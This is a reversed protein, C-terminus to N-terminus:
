RGTGGDRSDHAEKALGIALASGVGIWFAETDTYHFEKAAMYGFAGVVTTLSIHYQKDKEQFFGASLMSTSILLAILLKKM